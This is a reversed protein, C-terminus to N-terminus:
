TDFPFIVPFQPDLCCNFM